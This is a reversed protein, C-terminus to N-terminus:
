KQGEEQREGNAIAYALADEGQQELSNDVSTYEEPDVYGGVNCWLAWGGSGIEMDLSLTYNEPIDRCVKNAFEQITM